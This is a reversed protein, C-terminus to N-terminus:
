QGTVGRNVVISAVVRRNRAAGEQTENSAVPHSFGMAAPALVLYLPIDMKQELYEIVAQARRESLQQNYEANGSADTYGAVLINYSPLAKAKAAFAKLTQQGAPYIVSSNVGFYVTDQAIIDYDGLEGFRKALSDTEARNEAVGEANTDALAATPALGAQIENATKLDGSSFEVKTAAVAGGTGPTGDVDVKLGPVLTAPGMSSKKIGLPGGKVEVKTDNSLIVTTNGTAGQVHVMMDAGSRGVIVGQLKVTEQASASAPLALLAVAAIVPIFPLRM